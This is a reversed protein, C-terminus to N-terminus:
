WRESTAKLFISVEKAANPIKISSVFCERILQDLEVTLHLKYENDNEHVSTWEGRYYALVSTRYKLYNM